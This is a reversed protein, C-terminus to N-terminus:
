PSKGAAGTGSTMKRFTYLAPSKFFDPSNLQARVFGELEATPAALLFGKDKSGSLAPTLSSGRVRGPVVDLDLTFLQLTDGNLVANFLLYVPAQVFVELTNNTTGPGVVLLLNPDMRHLSAAFRASKGDQLVRVQYNSGQPTFVVTMNQQTDEWAGALSPSAVKSSESLWPETSRILCGALLLGSLMVAASALIRKM